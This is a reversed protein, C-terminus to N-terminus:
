GRRKRKKKNGTPAPQGTYSFAYATFSANILSLKSAAEYEAIKYAREEQPTLTRDPRISRLARVEDTEGLFARMKSLDSSLKKINLDAINVIRKNPAALTKLFTILQLSTGVVKIKVPIRSYYDELEREGLEFRLIELGAVDADSKISQIFEPLQDETPLLNKNEDIKAIEAEEEEQLKALKEKQKYQALKQHEQALKNHKAKIGGIGDELPSIGLFYVGGALLLLAVVAALLKQQLPIAQFRDM